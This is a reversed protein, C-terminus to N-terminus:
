SALLGGPRKQKVLEQQVAIGIAKGLQNAQSADGEVTSGAADVNVTINGMAAGSAEVGLKGNSGRRLPLIAEAGAEGMLGFRGTGGRAYQFLTPKNVIGGMAYPVIKNRAIVNGKANEVFDMKVPDWTLGPGTSGGGGGLGLFNGVGPILSLGQFLAKKAFIRALDSIVSNAFDRFNAKGTTVFDAFADGLDSVANVGVEGVAEAVNMAEDFVERLGQQFKFAASNAKELDARFQTMASHLKESSLQGVYKEIFEAVQRNIEIRQREEQSMLTVAHRADALERGAQQILKGQEELQKNIDDNIKKEALKFDAKAQEIDNNRKNIDKTEQKAVLIALDRQLQAELLQNEQAIANRIQRRIKLEADSMPASESGSPDADPDAYDTPTYSTPANIPRGTMRDYEIGAVTYTTALKMALSLDDAAIKAAKLQNKLQRIMRGNGETELRDQLEQVKDNMERLRDNAEKNTTEGAIVSKNFEANKRSHKVLAVTAATIGAALAVWPNLLSAATFGKMAVTAKGFATGLATAIGILNQLALAVGAAGAVILLEKFNAILFSSVDLLANMGNAAAVAVAKIAPLIELVFEAFARQLQAGIPQLAEGVERRVEQFAVTARAGADASSDAIARATEEYEPGLSIIFKMLEDLGVTGAKLSKQLEPLTMKNAEAFKTVAGPLREGLQGSLEEASVKGKSFTQVMATIASEVDQAGGGTAKIASTINRFVVEADGVNGGAGIVAASLRTIGRTSVDIPVNFDKTVQNAAKLANTYEPGAVGELAIELKQLQAAYDSTAGLAERIMKVQAGLAAGAAVGAVGGVAGGVAAGLAGEPGGFVGGAAIGGLGQALGGITPRRRRKNLKELRRDVKEIEKGLERFDQSTPDLGARLQAFANRQAQLSNISGNSAVTASRIDKTVQQYSKGMRDLTADVGATEIQTITKYLSSLEPVPTPIPSVASGGAIMVGTNPDRAAMPAGTRPNRAGAQGAQAAQIGALKEARRAARAQADGLRDFSSSTGGLAESLSQQLAILEKNADAYDKTTFDLNEVENQVEGIRLRLAALTAPQESQVINSYIGTQAVRAAAAVEQRGVRAAQQSEFNKIAVLKELYQDSDVALGQLERRRAKMDEVFADPVKSPGFARIAKAAKQAEPTLSKLEGELAEVDAALQKYVSSGISAQAQLAKFSEVVGKIAQTSKQGANAFELIETRIKRINKDTPGAAKGLATLSSKLVNVGEIGDVGLKILLDGVTKAM